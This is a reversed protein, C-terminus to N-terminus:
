KKAKARGFIVEVNSVYFEIDDKYDGDAVFRCGEAATLASCAGAIFVLDGPKYVETASQVVEVLDYNDNGEKVIYLFHGPALEFSYSTVEEKEETVEFNIM